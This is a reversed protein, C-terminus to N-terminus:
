VGIWTRNHIVQNIVLTSVGYKKALKSFTTEGLKYVSRIARVKQEDLKANPHQAGCPFSNNVGLINRAHYLNEKPTCWELNSVCNNLKDGDIHNVHPKNEPNPIFTLAVLRHCKFAQRKNKTDKIGYIRYGKKDISGSLFRNRKTSFIQGQQTICYNNNIPLINM